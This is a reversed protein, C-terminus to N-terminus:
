PKKIFEFTINPGGGSIVAKLGNASKEYQIVKPFENEENECTFSEGNLETLVFTTPAEEGQGTVEFLWNEKKRLIINEKWITDGKKLTCGMGIFVGDKKKKWYEYTKQGEKENTREWAGMLWSFEENQPKEMHFFTSKVFSTLFFVVILTVITKM